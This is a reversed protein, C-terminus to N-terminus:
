STSSAKLYLKILLDKIIIENYSNLRTKILIEADSLMKKGDEIKRLNWKKVQKYFIPKDKWFIKPKINEMAVNIDKYKEYEIRLDLLKKLRSHLNNLYFYIDENQLTINGLNKNLIEKEGSFCSDRLSNFDINYKNNLLGILKKNDIKKNLFLNKIKDVEQSVTKRDFGSNGVLLNILDQNLGDYDRLKFRVYDSLTRDTDQYCPITGTMKNKEFYSRLSSKKDLNQCFLFIKLDEKHNELVPILINKIKESAENIIIIKKEEFLSTNNVQENLIKDDKIIEDQNLIIKEFANYKEKILKKLDDKLGINEGYILTAFYPDLLKINKEVIFSKLIM